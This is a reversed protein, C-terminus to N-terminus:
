RSFYSQVTAFHPLTSFDSNILAENGGMGMHWYNFGKVYPAEYAAGMSSVVQATQDSNGVSGWEGIIIPTNPYRAHLEELGQKMTENILEPYHDITINGMKAVTADELIGNWDPNNSGWAVFGDFGYYGIKMGSVGVSQFSTESIDIADRLWQNFQEKSQFQCLSSCYTIGSIGGNQPEPIPTFIDGSQFLSPNALIYNKVMGLYNTSNNKTVGYIGEFALPMHRHWIKLGRSRAASVWRKTYALADGCSPNDYPTEIAVYNVGLEVARDLWRAIFVDDDQGCIKDKTEKMTSVSKIEWVSSSSPTPLTQVQTIALRAVAKGTREFYEMRIAHVGQTLSVTATHSTEPQQIWKNIYIRGDIYLRVGEDTTTTLLYNGGSFYEEKTWRVSFNDQKLEPAPSGRNWNFDIAQDNRVVVPTGSLASNPFYEGRFAPAVTGEVSVSVIDIMYPTSMWFRVRFGSIDKSTDLGAFDSLPILVTQQGNYCNKGYSSLSVYKWGSQEFVIASADGSLLCTGHLDYTVSLSSKGRLLTPEVTQYREVSEVGSLTWGSVFPTAAQVNKALLLLLVFLFGIRKM